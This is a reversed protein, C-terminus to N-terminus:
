ADLPIALQEQFRTGLGSELHGAGHGGHVCPVNRIKMRVPNSLSIYRGPIELDIDEVPRSVITQLDQRGGYSALNDLFIFPMNALHDPRSSRALRPKRADRLFTEQSHGLFRGLLEILNEGFEGPKIAILQIGIIQGRLCQIKLALESHLPGGISPCFRLPASARQNLDIKLLPIKFLGSPRELPQQLGMRLIPPGEQREGRTIALEAPAQLELLQDAFVPPLARAGIDGLPDMKPVRLDEGRLATELFRDRFTALRERDIRAHRLGAKM